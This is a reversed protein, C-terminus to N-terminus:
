FRFNLDLQLRKYDRDYINTLSTTDYPAPTSADFVTVSQPVDNALENLFLTANVTWNRAVTYGGRVVFGQTDTNGDGFDSDLLQGFLSDKEIQQYLLGIDWTGKASGASGYQIGAAYATDLEDQAVPNVEAATNTAYDIFFRLPRGGVSATLDASAELIDFDSALCATGAAVARACGTTTTTNGFSSGGFFPNYNQVGDFDMYTGALTLRVSDSLPIRYGVQGGFMISDTNTGTTVNGFSLAREALWDYFVGAFFNGKTYNASIGEPNIDGDYFLSGTRTFSYRQKGATIRWDATPAWTVFGLDLEFDKRSNQDTLTQNSSRPDPGGTAIGIGGSITDNVRFNANLRARVRDRNRNSDVHEVDFTENRYRLDGAFSLAARAQAVVDATRDATAQAEESTKRAQVQNKELAELKASLEALQQKLAEIEANQAFATSPALGAAAALASSVALSILRRKM